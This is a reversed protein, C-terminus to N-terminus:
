ELKNRFIHASASTASVWADFNHIQFARTSTDRHFFTHKKHECICKRGSNEEIQAYFYRDKTGDITASVWADFNLIQFAKTSTDRHFFHISKVSASANEERIKKLGLMFTDIRQEM